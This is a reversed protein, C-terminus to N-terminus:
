YNRMLFLAEHLGGVKVMGGFLDGYIFVENNMTGIYSNSGDYYRAYYGEITSSVKGSPYFYLSFKDEVMNFLLDSDEKEGSFANASLTVLALFLLGKVLKM